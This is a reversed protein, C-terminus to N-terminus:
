LNEYRLNINVLGNGLDVGQVVLTKGGPGGDFVMSFTNEAEVHLIGRETFGKETLSHQYFAIADSISMPTQFNIAGNGLNTFNRVDPPLPLDTDYNEPSPLPFPETTVQLPVQSPPLPSPPVPTESAPPPPLTISPVPSAQQPAQTPIQIEVGPTDVPPSGGGLMTKCALTAAALIAISILWPWRLPKM